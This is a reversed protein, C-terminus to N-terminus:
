QKLGGTQPTKNLHACHSFCDQFGPLGIHKGSKPFESKRLLANPDVPAQPEVHSARSDPLLRHGPPPETSIHPGRGSSAPCLGPPPPHHPLHVPCEPLQCPSPPAGRQLVPEHTCVNRKRGLSPLTNSGLPHSDEPKM